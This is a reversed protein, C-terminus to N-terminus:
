DIAEWPADNLANALLGNTVPRSGDAIMTWNLAAFVGATIGPTFTFDVDNGFTGSADFVWNANALRTYVGDAGNQNDLTQASINLEFYVYFNSELLRGIGTPQQNSWRPFSRKPTDNSHIVKTLVM